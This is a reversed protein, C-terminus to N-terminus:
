VLIVILFLNNLSYSAHGFIVFVAVLEGFINFSIFVAGLLLLLLVIIYYIFFSISRSVFLEVFVMPGIISIVLIAVIINLIIIVVRIDKSLSVGLLLIFYQEAISLAKTM